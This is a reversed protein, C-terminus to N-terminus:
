DRKIDDITKAPVYRMWTFEHKFGGYFVDERGEIRVGKDITQVLRENKNLKM